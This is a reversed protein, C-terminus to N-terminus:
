EFYVEFAEEWDDPSNKVDLITFRNKRTTPALKVADMFVEKSIGIEMPSLPFGIKRYFAKIREVSSGRLRQTFLTAIGVQIGHPHAAKLIKDLAHSILHEAGSAPRSNGSIIMSVGSAALGEALDEFFVTSFPRAESYLISRAGSKSLMYAFYDIKEGKLEAALKWDELASINSILDGCGALNFTLPAKSIINLDVIAGYPAIARTSKIEDGFDIVAVPSIIGDHSLATPVLISPIFTRSSALKVTDLIRGGGVGLVVDVNESRIIEEVEMVDEITGGRMFIAHSVHPLDHLIEGYVKADGSDSVLLIRYGPPFEEEIIEKVTEFLETTIKFVAPLPILRQIEM